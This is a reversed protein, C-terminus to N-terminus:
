LSTASLAEHAWYAQAAGLCNRWKWAGASRLDKQDLGNIAAYDSWRLPTTPFLTTFIQRERLVSAEDSMIGFGHFSLGHRAIPKLLTIDGLGIGILRERFDAVRNLHRGGPQREFASSALMAIDAERRTAAEILIRVDGQVPRDKDVDALCNTDLTFSPM